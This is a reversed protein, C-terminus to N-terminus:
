EHFLISISGTDSDLDGTEIFDPVDARFTVLSTADVEVSWAFTLTVCQTVDNLLSFSERFPTGTSVGDVFLGFTWPLTIFEQGAFSQTWVVQLFGTRGIVLANGSLIAFTLPDGKTVLDSLNWIYQNPGTFNAIPATHVRAAQTKTGGISSLIAPALSLVMTGTPPANDTVVIQDTTGLLRRSEPLSVSQNTATIFTGASVAGSSLVMDIRLGGVGDDTVNINNGGILSKFQGNTNYILSDGGGQSLLNLGFTLVNGSDNLTLRHNPEIAIVKLQGSTSPTPGAIISYGGVAANTLSTVGGGPGSTAAFTLVGPTLEQISMNAGAVLSKLIGSSNHVISTGLGETTLTAVGGGGASAAITIGAASPTLTVNAGQILRRFVVPITIGTGTFTADNNQLLSLGPGVAADIRFQSFAVSLPLGRLFIESSVFIVDWNNSSM